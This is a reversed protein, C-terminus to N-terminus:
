LRQFLTPYDVVFGNGDVTLVQEFGSGDASQYRYHTDDLKTYIQAHAFPELTDLPIWAMLFRTPVGTEPAVRRIPLTNTLPTGSIDIDVCGALEDAPEGDILWVGNEIALDLTPGDTRDIFLARFTWDPALELDYTLGLELGEREGILTSRIRIGYDTERVHCHELGVGDVPRWRLDLELAM